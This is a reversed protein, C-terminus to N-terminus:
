SLQSEAPLSYINPLCLSGFKFGLKKGLPIIGLASRQDTPEGACACM